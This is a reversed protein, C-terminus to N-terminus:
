LNWSKIFREPLDVNNVRLMLILEGHHMHEHDIIKILEIINELDADKYIEEIEQIQDKLVQTLIEVPIKEKLTIKDGNILVGFSKDSANLLKRKYADTTTAICQFQFSIPKLEFESANEITHNLINHLKATELIELTNNRTWKFRRFIDEVTQNKFNLYGM